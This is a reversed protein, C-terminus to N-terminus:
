AAIAPLSLTEDRTAADAKVLTVPVTTLKVVRRAVSRSLLSRLIGMARTGMVIKTCAFREASKAIEEAADGLAVHATHFVHRARLAATAPKLLTMGINRRSEEVARASTFLTVDGAMVPPQVNVVHIHLRASATKAIAYQLARQAAHSGDFPLLIREAEAFPSM